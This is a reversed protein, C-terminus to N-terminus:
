LKLGWPLEPANRLWLTSLLFQAWLNNALLMKAMQDMSSSANGPGSLDLPFLDSCTTPSIVHITETEGVESSDPFTPLDKTAQKDAKDKTKTTVVAALEKVCEPM